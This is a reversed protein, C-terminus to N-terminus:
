PQAVVTTATHTEIAIEVSAALLLPPAAMPPGIDAMGIPWHNADFTQLPASDLLCYPCTSRGQMYWARICHHHYPHHCITDTSDGALTPSSLCRGRRDQRQQIAAAAAAVTTTAFDESCIPCAPTQILPSIGPHCLRPRHSATRQATAVSVPVVTAARIKCRATQCPALVLPDGVSCSDPGFWVILLQIPWSFDTHRAAVASLYTYSVAASISGLFFFPTSAFVLALTIRCTSASIREFASAPLLLAFHLNFCCLIGFVSLGAFPAITDLTESDDARYAERISILLAVWLM